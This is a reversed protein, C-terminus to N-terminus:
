LEVVPRRDVAAEMLEIIDRPPLNASQIFQELEQGLEVKVTNTARELLLPAEPPGMERDGPETTRWGKASVYKMANRYADENLIRLRRARYLLANISIGWRQKLEALRLWGAADIRAPLVEAAVSRPLLFASAFEHAQTEVARTATESRPHMVLHGLEHAADFRSRVYNSKDETLLVIPRRALRASFADVLRHGITLRAVIVGHRELERLVHPIPETGLGWQSRVTEAAKEIDESGSEPSVPHDPIRVEPLRVHLELAAVLDGLVLVLAAARRRERVPTSRLHRFYTVLAGDESTVEPWLATFFGVPVDLARALEEMTDLSPRIRGGEIQSLAAATIPRQMRRVTEQQTLGRLERAAKIRRPQVPAAEGRQVADM